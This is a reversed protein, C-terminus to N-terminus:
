RRKSSWCVWFNKWYALIGHDVLTDYLVLSNTLYWSDDWAGPSRDLSVWLATTGLFFVFVLALCVNAISPRTVIRYTKKSLVSLAVQPSM